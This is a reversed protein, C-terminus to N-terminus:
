HWQDYEPEKEQEKCEELQQEQHTLITCDSRAYSVCLLVFGAEMQDDDLFSQDSQDVEGELLKGTCTACAGARCSFPLDIGCEEAVDLIYENESVQIATRHGDPAVLTVTYSGTKAGTNIPTFPQPLPVFTLSNANTPTADPEFVLELRLRLSGKQWGATQPSMMQCQIGTNLLAQVLTHTLPLKQLDAACAVTGLEQQWLRQLPDDTVRFVVDNGNNLSNDM